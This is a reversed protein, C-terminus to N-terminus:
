FPELKSHCWMLMKMHTMLSNNLIVAVISYAETGPDGSKCLLFPDLSLLQSMGTVGYYYIIIAPLHLPILRASIFSHPCHM